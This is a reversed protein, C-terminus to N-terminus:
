NLPSKPATVVSGALSQPSKPVHSTQTIINSIMRSMQKETPLLKWHHGNMATGSNRITKLVCVHTLKRYVPFNGEPKLGKYIELVRVSYPNKKIKNKSKIILIDYLPPGCPIKILPSKILRTSRLKGLM